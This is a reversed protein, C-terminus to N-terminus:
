RPHTKITAYEEEMLKQPYLGDDYGFWHQWFGM